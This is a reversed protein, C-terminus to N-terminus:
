HLMCLHALNICICGHLCILLIKMLLFFLLSINKFYKKALFTLSPFNFHSHSLFFTLSKLCIIKMSPQDSLSHMIYKERISYSKEGLQLGRIKMYMKARMKNEKDMCEREKERERM